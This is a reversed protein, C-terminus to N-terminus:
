KEHKKLTELLGKSVIYKLANESIRISQGENLSNLLSDVTGFDYDSLKSFWSDPKEHLSEGVELNPGDGIKPYVMLTDKDIYSDISDLFYFKDDGENNEELAMASSQTIVYDAAGSYDDPGYKDFLESENNSVYESAQNYGLEDIEGNTWRSELEEFVMVSFSQPDTNEKLLGSLKKMRALESILKKDKM